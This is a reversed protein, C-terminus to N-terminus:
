ADEGLITRCVDRAPAEETPRDPSALNPIMVRDLQQERHPHDADWQLAKRAWAKAEERDGSNGAHLARALRAWAPGRPRLEGVRRYADVAEGWLPRLSPEAGFKSARFMEDAFDRWLRHNRQDRRLAERYHEWAQEYQDQHVLAQAMMQQPVPSWPDAESAQELSVIAADSSAASQAGYMAVQSQLIPNLSTFYLGAVLILLIAFAATTARVHLGRSSTAPASLSQEVPGPDSLVHLVLVTQLVGWFSIGGAALLNLLASAMAVAAAMGLWRRWHPASLQLLSRWIAYALGVGLGGAGWAVPLLGGITEPPFGFVLAAGSGLIMGALLAAGLMAPHAPSWRDAKAREPADDKTQASGSAGMMVSMMRPAWAIAFLLMAPLGGTAALEVLFNHPEAVLESAHPAQYQGYWSQFNGSGCGLLPHEAAVRLAGEWYEWRYSLSLAAQTLVEKDLAGVVIGAVLLLLGGAFGAFPLKWGLRREGRWDQWVLMAGGLAAALVGTRSKTLVLCGGMAAVMVCAAIMMRASRKLGLGSISEVTETSEVAGRSTPTHRYLLPAGLLLVMWPALVGALSNALAFTAYPESSDLRNEFQVRSPSGPAPDVGNNRLVEKREAESSNKYEARQAPMTVFYQWAGHLSGGVALGLMACAM